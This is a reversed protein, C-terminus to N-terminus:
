YTCRDYLYVDIEAANKIGGVINGFYDFSVPGKSNCWSYYPHVAKMKTIAKRGRKIVRKKIPKGSNYYGWANQKNMLTVTRVLESIKDTDGKDSTVYTGHYSNNGRSKIYM